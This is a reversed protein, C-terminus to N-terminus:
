ARRVSEDGLADSSTGAKAFDLRARDLPFSLMVRTGTGQESAVALGLGMKDCMIAALYLGMGTSSGQARGNAGTFGRDFVRPMDAAPIGCGDDAIELVVQGDSGQMLTQTATFSITNAGYKAANVVAQAIIFATWKEDTFVRVEDLGAFKLSVGAEILMRANKKCVTSVLGALATEHISYDSQVATSRAYWLAQEVNREIRELEHRVSDAAQSDLREIALRAAAIPAKVEHIWSEVYERYTKADQQAREIEDNAATGIRELAEYVIRQEALEPEELLACIHWPREAQFAFDDLDKLFAKRRRYGLACACTCCLVYVICILAVADMGIGCLAAICSILALAILACSLEPIRDRVYAALNM